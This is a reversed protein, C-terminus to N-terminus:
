LERRPDVVVNALLLGSVLAAAVFAAGFAAEVGGVVDDALLASLSRAGLSGPVLLMLGPVMILAAPRDLRRALGNGAAGLALAGLLPGLRPGLLSAGVAAGQWAVLCGLLVWGLDRARAQFLAGLALASALLALPRLAPAAAAEPAATAGGVLEGAVQDGLAIGCGILMFTAAVSVLRAAGSGPHGSSVERIALTLSFGPLLVILAALTVIWPDVWLGLAPAARAVGAALTAAIAPFVPASRVGVAVRGLAGITLGLAAALVIGRPGAGLLCAAAGCVLGHAGLLLAGPIRPPAELIATLRADAAAPALRGRALAAVLADVEVLRGLDVGGASVRVLFSAQAGAPGFAAHIATPLALFHGPVGLRAAVRGMTAEVRDAPAGLGHLAQGLRVVLARSAAERAEQIPEVFVPM